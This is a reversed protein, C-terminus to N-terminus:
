LEKTRVLYCPITFAARNQQRIENVLAQQPRQAVAAFPQAIKHEVLHAVVNSNLNETCMPVTNNSLQRFVSDDPPRSLVLRALTHGDFVDVV